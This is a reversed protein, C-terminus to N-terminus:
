FGAQMMNFPLITNDWPWLVGNTLYIWQQGGSTVRFYNQLVTGCFRVNRIRTRAFSYQDATVSQLVGESTLVGLQNNISFRQDFINLTFM